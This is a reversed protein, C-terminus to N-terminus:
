QKPNNKDIIKHCFKFGYSELDDNSLNGVPAIADYLEKASVDYKESLEFAIKWLDNKQSLDIKQGRLTKRLGELEDRSLNLKDDIFYALAFSPHPTTQRLEEEKLIKDAQKTAVHMDILIDEKIDSFAESNLVNNTNKFKNFDNKGNFMELPNNFGANCADAKIANRLASMDHPEVTFKKLVSNFITYFKSIEEGNLDLPNIEPTYTESPFVVRNSMENELLNFKDDDLNLTDKLKELMVCLGELREFKNFDKLSSYNNDKLTKSIINKFDEQEKDNFNLTKIIANIFKIDAFNNISQAQEAALKISEELKKRDQACFNEFETSVDPDYYFEADCRDIIRGALKERGDDDLNLVNNLNEALNCQANFSEEEEGGFDSMSTYNNTELFKALTDQAQKLAETSLGFAAGLGSIFLLDNKNLKIRGKFQIQSKAINALKSLDKELKQQNADDITNQNNQLKIYQNNNFNVKFNPTIQM